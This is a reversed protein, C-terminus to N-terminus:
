AEAWGRVQADALSVCARGLRAGARRAPLAHWIEAGKIILFVFFRLRAFFANEEEASVKGTYRYQIRSLRM